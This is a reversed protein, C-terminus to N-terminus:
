GGNGANIAVILLACLVNQVVIMIVSVAQREPQGDTNCDAVVKNANKRRFTEGSRRERPYATETAPGRRGDVARHRCRVTDPFTAALNLCGQVGQMGKSADDEVAVGFNCGLETSEVGAACFQSAPNMCVLEAAPRAPAPWAAPAAAAAAHEALVAPKLEGLMDLAKERVGGDADELRQVIAAAQEM